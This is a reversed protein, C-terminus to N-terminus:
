SWFPQPDGDTLVSPVDHRIWQVSRKELSQEVGPVAVVRDQQVQEAGERLAPELCPGELVAGRDRLQEGVDMVDPEHENGLVCGLDRRVHRLSLPHVLTVRLPDRLHQGFAGRGHPLRDSSPHLCTPM